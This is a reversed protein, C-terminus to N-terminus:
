VGQPHTHSTFCEWGSRPRVTEKQRKGMILDAITSM